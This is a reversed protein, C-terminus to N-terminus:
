YAIRMYQIEMVKMKLRLWCIIMWDGINHFIEKWRIM